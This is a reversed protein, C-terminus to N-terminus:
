DLLVNWDIGLDKAFDNDKFAPYKGCPNYCSQGSPHSSGIITGKSILDSKKIAESGWLVFIMTHSDLAKIINNTFDTWLKKHSNIKGLRVTLAANLFLVGQSAIKELNGHSPINKLHKYKVLNKYINQLSSPISIGMPVSFSMGMAQPINNEINFYPDQGIIVIQVENVPLEFAKFVLRPYPLITINDETEKQLTKVISDPIPGILKKWSDDPFDILSQNTWPIFDYHKISIM